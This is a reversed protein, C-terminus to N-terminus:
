PGVFGSAAYSKEIVQRVSALQAQLFAENEAANPYDANVTAGFILTSYAQARLDPDYRAVWTMFIEARMHTPIFSKPHADSPETPGFLSRWVPTWVHDTMVLKQGDQGSVYASVVEVGDLTLHDWYSKGIRVRPHAKVMVRSADIENYPLIASEPVGYMYNSFYNWDAKGIKLIDLSRLAARDNVPPEYGFPRTWESRPVDIQYYGFFVNFWISTPDAYRGRCLTPKGCAFAVNFVLRGEDPFFHRKVLRGVGGPTISRDDVRIELVSPASGSEGFRPDDVKVQNVFIRNDIEGVAPVRGLCGALLLTAVVVPGTEIALACRM